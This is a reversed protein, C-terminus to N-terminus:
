ADSANPTSETGLTGAVKAKHYEVFAENLLEANELLRNREDSKLIAFDVLSEDSKQEEGKDNYSITTLKVSLYADEMDAGDVSNVTYVAFKNSEDSKPVPIKLLDDISGAKKIQDVMEASDIPLTMVVQEENAWKQLAESYPQRVANWVLAVVIVLVIGFEILWILYVFLGAIPLGAGRKGINWGRQVRDDIQDKFSIEEKIAERLASRKEQDVKEEAMLNDAVISIFREYQFGYKAAIGGCSILLGIILGVALNRVHGLNIALVGLLGLAFGFGITILFTVYILPIWYLMLEYLFAVAASILIALVLYLICLPSFAGSPRYTEFM